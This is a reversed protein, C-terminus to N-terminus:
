FLVDAAVGKSQRGYFQVIGDGVDHAQTSLAYAGQKRKQSVAHIPFIGFLNQTLRSCDFYKVVEGEHM